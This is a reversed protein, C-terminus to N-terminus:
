TLDVACDKRDLLFLARHVQLYYETRVPRTRCPPLDACAINANVIALRLRM